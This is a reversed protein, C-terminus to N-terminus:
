GILKLLNQPLLNAQALVAIGAQLQVQATAYATSEMAVDTDLLVGRAADQNQLSSEINNSAYNFRSQLAGVDARISTIVDIADDIVDSAIAANAQTLVDITRGGYLKSTQANGLSVELTDETTTGVQFELATGGAGFGFASKLAEQFSKARESTSLDITLAATNTTNEEVVAPGYFEVFKNADTLNTLRVLSNPRIFSGIDGSRYTEGNIVIEIIGNSTGPAPAQVKIDQIGVDAFSNSQMRISTGTLSGTSVGNTLIAGAGSYSTVDRKQYFTLGAFAANVRAAIVNAGTQDTVTAGNNAAMEIEFYGGNNSTFRVTTNATPATNVNFANYQIGGVTVSLNILNVNNTYEATFGSIKGSFAANMVGNVSVGGTINGNAFSGAGTAPGAGVISTGFSVAAGAAGINFLNGFAKREINIQRGERNFELQDFLNRRNETPAGAVSGAQLAYARLTQVANDLTEELTAGIIIETANGPAATAAGATIFNFSLNAGDNFTIGKGSFTATVNAAPVPPLTLQQNAKIQNQGTLLNDGVVGSATTRGFGLGVESGGQLFFTGATGSQTGTITVGGAGLSATGASFTFARGIAGGGADQTIVVSNGSRSYTAGSIAVNTSANLLQVLSDVMGNVDGSFFTTGTAAAAVTTSTFTVGNFILTKGGALSTNLSVSGNAAIANNAATTPAVKDFVSGDLLVVGNFNTTTTLRNIEASLEQFEQNLFGREQAAMSGAGAQIAIAKQRQLIDTIQSLAGDAVQLMSSGQSTNIMAMRLTTVQTRLSTGAALSAVDDSARVIRNGSSLRAVSASASSSAKGINQQAYYAAINTNISNLAM